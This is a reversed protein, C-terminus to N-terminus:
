IKKEQKKSFFKRFASHDKIDSYHDVDNRAELLFYNEDNLNSLTDALVTSTGWDKEAFLQENVRKMGLLYYGGDEAPGIVYDHDQLKDFAKEIDEPALDYMDSGIILIRKYGNNFGAEFANRMKEGLNNGQQLKKSYISNDWLDASKIEESYYVEKDASVDKTIDATHELLFKYIDLATSDGVDRALRTKVKGFEPNRTFILLLNESRM